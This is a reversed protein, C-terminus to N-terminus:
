ENFRLDIITNRTSVQGGNQLIRKIKHLTMDLVYICLSPMMSPIYNFYTPGVSLHSWVLIFTKKLTMASNQRAPELKILYVLDM